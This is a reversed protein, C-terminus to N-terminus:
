PHHGGQQALLRQESVGPNVCVRSTESATSTYGLNLQATKVQTRAMM